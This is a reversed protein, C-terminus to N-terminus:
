KHKAPARAGPAEKKEEKRPALEDLAKEGYTTVM